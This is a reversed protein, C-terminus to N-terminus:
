PLRGRPTRQGPEAQHGARIILRPVVSLTALVILLAVAYFIVTAERRFGLPNTLIPVLSLFALYTLGAVIMGTSNRRPARRLIAFELPMLIAWTTLAAVLGPGWTWRADTLLALSFAFTKYGLCRVFEGPYDSVYRFFVRRAAPDIARENPVSAERQIAAHIIADDWQMGISTDCLAGTGGLLSFWIGHAAEAQPPGSLGLKRDRYELLADRSLGALGFGALCAVLLLVSAFRTRPWSSLILLAGAAALVSFGLSQRVFGLGGAILGYGLSVGLAGAYGLRGIAYPLVCLLSLGILALGVAMGRHDALWYLYEAFAAHMTLLGVALAAGIAVSRYLGIGVFSAFMLSGITYSWQNITLNTALSPTAGFRALLTQVVVYGVDDAGTTEEFRRFGDPSSGAAFLVGERASLQASALYAEFNSYQGPRVIAERSDRDPISFLATVALLIGVLLGFGAVTAGRFRHSPGGKLYQITTQILTGSSSLVHEFITALAVVALCCFILWLWTVVSVWDLLVAALIVVSYGIIAFAARGTPLYGRYQLWRGLPQTTLSLVWLGLLFPLPLPERPFIAAHALLVAVSGLSVALGRAAFLRHRDPSLRPWSGRAITRTM